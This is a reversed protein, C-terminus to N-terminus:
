KVHVTSENEDEYLEDIMDPFFREVTEKSVPQTMLSVAFFVVANAILGWIGAHIDLPHVVVFSFILTIIFGAIIGWLAGHKTGRPWMFMGVIAPFSQAIFGYGILLMYVLSAPQIIAIPAVIFLMIPFILRRTWKGATEDSWNLMPQLVDKSYSLATAHFCPESSSMSAALTGAGLLGAVIVPMTDVALQIAVHDPNGIEPYMFIGIFGVIIMPILVIYFTPLLRASRRLSQESKAGMWQIWHNQWISFFSILISTTWFTVNMDGLAGPLTFFEPVDQAVREFIPTISFGGTFQNTAWLGVFFSVFLMLAGQFANTLGIAKLGSRYLYISVAGLSLFVGIWIPILGYSMVNLIYAAGTTQIVAYALLGISTVISTIGGLAKSEYRDAIAGPQTVHNYKKGLRWVKPGFYWALFAMYTLYVVVYLAPAGKSYAWGPSGMFTYASVGGAGILLYVMIPGMSRSGVGWNEASDMNMGKGAFSGMVVAIVMYSLTIILPIYEYM